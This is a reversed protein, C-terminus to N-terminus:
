IVSNITDRFEHVVTAFGEDTPHIEDHWLELRNALPQHTQLVHVNPHTAAIEMQIARFKELLFDTIARQHDFEVVGQAFLPPQIWKGKRHDAGNSPNFPFVRDYGHIFIPLDPFDLHVERVLTSYGRTILDLQEQLADPVFATALDFPEDPAHPRVILEFVPTDNKEGLIDNGGSSFVFGNPARGAIDAADEIAELFEPNNFVMNQTTDGAAGVSFVNYHDDLHDVVDLVRFPFQFWSDGETVLIKRNKTSSNKMNRRFRRKRRLRSISNAFDFLVAAETRPDDSGELDVTTEDIGIGSAFGHTDDQSVTFYQALERDDIDLDRLKEKLQSYSIKDSM